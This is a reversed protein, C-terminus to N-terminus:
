SRCFDCIYVDKETGACDNHAWMECMLCQIWLEGQHNASYLGECFKCPTHEDGPNDVGVPM